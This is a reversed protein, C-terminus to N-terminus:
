REARLDEAAGRLLIADHEERAREVFIELAGRAAADSLALRVEDDARM